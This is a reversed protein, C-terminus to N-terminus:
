GHQFYACDVQFKLVQKYFPRLECEFM